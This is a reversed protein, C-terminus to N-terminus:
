ASSFAVATLLAGAAATGITAVWWRPHRLSVQREALYSAVGGGLVPPALLGLVDEISPSSPAMLHDGFWFLSMPVAAGLMGLAVVPVIADRLRPSAFRSLAWRLVSAVVTLVAVVFAIPLVYVIPLVFVATWDVGWGDGELTLWLTIGLLSATLMAGLWRVTWLGWPDLPHTPADHVAAPGADSSQGTVM